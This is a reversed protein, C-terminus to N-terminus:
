RSKYLILFCLIILFVMSGIYYTRLFLIKGEFDKKKYGDLLILIEKKRDLSANNYSELINSMINM